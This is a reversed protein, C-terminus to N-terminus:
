AAVGSIKWGDRRGLDTIQHIDFVRGAHIVRDGTTIPTPNWRVVFVVTEREAEGFGTAAEDARLERVEARVTLFPTWVKAVAGSASVTEVLREFQVTRDLKGAEIM